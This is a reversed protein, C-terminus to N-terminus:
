NPRMIRLQEVRLGMGGFEVEIPPAKGTAVGELYHDLGLSRFDIVGKQAPIRLEGIDLQLPPGFIGKGQHVRATVTRNGLEHAAFTRRVGELVQYPGTSVPIGTGSRPLVPGSGAVTSVPPPPPAPARPVIRDDTAHRVQAGTTTIADQTIKEVSESAVMAQARAEAGSFEAALDKASHNLAEGVDSFNTAQGVERLTGSGARIFGGTLIGILADTALDDTTTDEGLLERTIAGGTISAAGEGLLFAATGGAGGQTVLSSGGSVGALGGSVIGGVTHAGVKSWNIGEPNDWEKWLGVGFGITGGIGAGAAGTVLMGVGGSPDHMAIPRNHVYAFRNAGDGIGHPDASEWRGLWPMYHRHGHYHLGTEEDKEKGTYRYRKRSVEINGKESWWATTGYPHYEEYSIVGGAQDLELLATGLHDDLQYRFRPKPDHADVGGTVTLTEAMAVRRQDDMVHLTQREEQVVGGGNRKRWVEYPGVYIREEIVNGKDWVKRVRQGGADYAYWSVNGTEDLDAMRIQDRFDREVNADVGFRLHPLFVMAGRANYRYRQSHTSPAAPDDGPMSTSLLQNNGDAYQYGRRWAVMGADGNADRHGNQHKMSAINGAPDYIYSQTYARLAPNGTDPLSGPSGAYDAYFATTQSQSVKERGTAWQLRYLGDYGFTREPTVQANNFFVTEQASDTISTINGVADRTYAMRQLFGDSHESAGERRTEVRKLWFRDGDYDYKTSANNAYDIGERQGRANYTINTVIPTAETAKRLYVKVANLRGGLDYGPVTTSGDPTTQETVRDLADYRTSIAFSEGDLTAAGRVASEVSLLSTEGALSAWDSETRIDAFVQRAQEATRGRLDYAFTVRGATDYVHVPRGKAFHALPVDAVSDGYITLEVLRDGVGEDVHLAVPRRLGDYTRRLFLDGSRWTLVPQGTVDVLASTEGKGNSGDYGEDAAGTFLPRGLLDFRQVQIDNGRPDTVTQVNGQVDLALRTTYLTTRDPMEVLAYARGLADLYTTVPTNEHAGGVLNDEEDGSTVQWPDYDWTRVNGDPLLLRTNRGVPDYAFTTAKGWRVEREFSSATAFYPEYQKVVNGKNDPVSWGTVVFRPDSWSGEDEASTPVPGPEAQVRTQLVNGGGDGYAWSEQWADVGHDKRLRTHVCAPLHETDYHFEASHSGPADGASGNRISTTLVRGLPDFTAESETGNPDTVKRPQLLRYDMATTTRLREPAGSGALPSEVRVLALRDDDWTLATVNAFADEHAIPQYFATPDLHLAGSPLWVDGGPQGDGDADLHVYGAEALESSGARSGFRVPVLGETFALAHRDRVLGRLGLRGPPLPGTLQDDWYRTFQHGVLRKHSGAGAPAQEFSWSTALAFAKAVEAVTAPAGDDTWARTGTLEWTRTRVPAGIHWHSESVRDDQNVFESDTVVVTLVKQEADHGTGRRPYSVAASRLVAGYADTELVLTHAVRPDPTATALDLEYASSLTEAPDVRFGAHREGDGPQLRVVVFTQETVTYLTKLNGSEDEAYVEQRLTRGKLARHAERLERPELGAPVSPLDLHHAAADATNYEGRYAEALTQEQRWAGTHFWTRTRVPPLRVVFEGTGTHDYDSVRETDWQEVMGFGRFEREDGDYFGHHYEYENVFRWGTVSDATEVKALCHVPFPLRTAWPRGARRDDLYFRTSATYSLKTVRGLGNDVTAMLWPKGQGMLSMYRLPRVDRDLFPASWVLCATGDGLLDSVQVEHPRAAAPFHEITMPESWDNGSQNFWIRVGEPGIYLLDTPGSGDVDTLRIRSSDYRDPHDFRPAGAMQVRAGFSGYGRNPWYSVSGNRIRVVDALGDGTMDSLFFEAGDRSFLFRPGKDEDHPMPVRVPEGFGGRAKSPYWVLLDGETVLLDAHGDGDLDVLRSDPGDARHTPVSEFARFADWGGDPSRPQYGSHGPRMLVVDLNGDGDLDILRTGPEGLSVNPRSGLRQAPAFRGQGENRKYFWAGGQQSLLGAMGEGDLDVFQWARMDLGNPLEELGDVFRITMDVDPEAYTFRVEPLSATEYGSGTWTWGTAHASLLTSVTPREAYTLSLSRVVAPVPLDDSGRISGFSHFMLVRRCLRYCRVDFRSRFSSFRDRRTTWTRDPAINPDLLDHDGYDFVLHLRFAGSGGADPNQFPNTNGYSVCKVYRYAVSRRAEAPDAPVAERDEAAYQWSTVNGREDREEELLWEFVRTPDDPDVLRAQDHRGYIRTVNDRSITRWYTRRDAERKWREILAFAGEIRPRFRQVTWSDVGDDVSRTALGWAGDSEVLLPVLDEADSLVFTDTDVYRPLGKDTKRRISPVSLRWGLGFPGNGASSDYSLSLAPTFGGRGPTLPLPVSVSASGTVPNASVKEGMGSIAGGGKPLSVSPAAIRFNDGLLGDPGRSPALDRGLTGPRPPDTSTAPGPPAGTRTPRDAM